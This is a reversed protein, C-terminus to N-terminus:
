APTSPWTDPLRDASLGAEALYTANAFTIGNAGATLVPLGYATGAWRCVAVDMDVLQTPALKAAALYPELPALSGEEALAPLSERNNM